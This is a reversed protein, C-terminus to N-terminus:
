RGSVTECGGGVRGSIGREWSMAARGGEMGGEKDRDQKEDRSRVAEKIRYARV